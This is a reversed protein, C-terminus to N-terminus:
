AAIQEEGHGTVDRLEDALMSRQRPTLTGLRKTESLALPALFKRARISGWRRQSTLLEAITMTETEPPAQEVIEAAAVRGAAVKRKLAARALRVDNARDLAQMHQPKTTM